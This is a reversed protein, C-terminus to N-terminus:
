QEEEVTALAGDAVGKRDVSVVVRDGADIGETIETFQWNALGTAVRREELRGGGTLVFVRVGGVLAETPIRLAEEKVDVVVEADASYGALMLALDDRNSFDAEVDVTRAQKERDLVYDAIRRVRGPFTRDRYSDLTIRVEMGARIAPVDVEDIPATLYYCTPDILDVAPLTLIGPPSPTVYEGLEGHLDAVIGAFPARLITRDLNARIVAVRDRGADAAARAAACRAASSGAESVAQDIQEQAAAGSKGLALYRTATKAAIEAQLCSAEAQALAARHDSEASTLQAALDDNWLSLLLDGKKVTMGEKVPWQAIQGAAAPSMQARRCPEVTGARTNVVTVEVPGRDAARVIVAVPQERTLHHYGAAALAAVLLLVVLTKLFKM